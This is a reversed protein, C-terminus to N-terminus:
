VTCCHRCYQLFISTENRIPRRFLMSVFTSSEYNDLKILLYGGIRGWVCVALQQEPRNLWRQLWGLAVHKAVLLMGELLM